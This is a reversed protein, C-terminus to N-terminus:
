LENIRLITNSELNVLLFNNNIKYWQENRSPKALNNDEYDVKYGNGRYHQPLVYGEQWRFQQLRQVGREERIRRKEVRMDDGNAGGRFEHKHKGQMSRSSNQDRDDNQHPAATTLGSAMLASFSIALISLIKKM